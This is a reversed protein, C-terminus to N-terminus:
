VHARGIQKTNYVAYMGDTPKFVLEIPVQYSPFWNNYSWDNDGYPSVFSSVQDLLLEGNM